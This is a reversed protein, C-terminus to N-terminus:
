LHNSTLVDIKGNLCPKSNVRHSRSNTSIMNNRQNCEIHQKKAAAETANGLSKRKGELTM